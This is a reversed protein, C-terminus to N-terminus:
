SPRSCRRPSATSRIAAIGGPRAADRGAGCRGGCGQSPRPYAAGHARRAREERREPLRCERRSRAEGAARLRRRHARRSPGAFLRRLDAAEGLAARRASQRQRCLRAGPQLEAAPRRLPHLGAVCRRPEGRRPVRLHHPRAGARPRGDPLRCQRQSRCLRLQVGRGVLRAACRPIADRDKARAVAIMPACTTSISPGSGACRSRRTARRGRARPDACQRDPGRVTARVTLAHPAAGRVPISEESSTSARAVRRRRPLAPDGPRDDERYLDRTSAANNTITWAMTGNSGWWMGPFGPHGAGACTTRPGTCGTSTGARLCGSRSTRIAASSRSRRHRHAARRLAWNNSGTADDTGAATRRAAAADGSPLVLHESAKRRSSVAQAARRRRLFRACEAAAIRDIRGNLSWWIGRGIAVIDRVTFPEPEYALLRFEIPLAGRASEIHRNIGAVMAEVIGRSAADMAEAERAAIAPIGVTRHAIDSALYAAGLVEAQRGLARRRLRDMQWLRDEATAVGLGFYLDRTSAAFVHPVGARDRLIEVRGGVQGKLHRDQPAARRRLLADRAAAFDPADSEAGGRMAALLDMDDLPM